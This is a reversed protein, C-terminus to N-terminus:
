ICLMMEFDLDDSCPQLRGQEDPHNFRVSVLM